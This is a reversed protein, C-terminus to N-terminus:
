VNNINNLIRNIKDTLKVWEYYASLFNGEKDIQNGKPKVFIENYYLFDNNEKLDETSKYYQM